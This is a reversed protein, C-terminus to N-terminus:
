ISYRRYNPYCFTYKQKYIDIDDKAYKRYIRLSGYRYICHFHEVNGRKRKRSNRRPIHHINHNVQLTQCEHPVIETKSKKDRKYEYIDM